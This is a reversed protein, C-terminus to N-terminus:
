HIPRYVCMKDLRGDAWRVKKESEFAFENCNGAAFNYDVIRGSFPAIFYTDDSSIDMAYSSDHSYKEFATQHLSVVGSQPFIANDVEIYSLTVSNASEKTLAEATLRNREVSEKVVTGLVGGIVTTTVLALAIVKNRIIKLEEKTKKKKKKHATLFEYCSM